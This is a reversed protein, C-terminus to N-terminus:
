PAHSGRPCREGPALLIIRLDMVNTRTPGTRLLDGLRDFFPYADNRALFAAPDMGVAAARARTSADCFAGAADTPGDSGDSGAILAAVPASEPILTSLVLAFEQNRGGLGDGKIVVTTEGGSLLCAPPAVPHGSILAERVLAGHFRAAEGTDGEVLASLILPSYGLRRAAEAAASLALRNSGVILHRAKALLPDGPKPTEAVRGALGRELHDVVRAPLRDRAAYRALVAACQRFTSPDPVTPGSAIVEPDDGVVDSLILSLCAAPFAAQALRGGKIDSIHKRLTNIEHITAGCALLFRITAQKDELTLGPAPLPLLASGGGSLLLLILDREGAARALELIRRAGALGAGDPVPHGAEVLEVRRLPAGHGHKVVVCGGAIREGLLAELAAAMSASAKGAGTLLIREIGDLAISHPGAVLLRGGQELRCHRRVASEAEVAALGATFIERAHSRLTHFEANL